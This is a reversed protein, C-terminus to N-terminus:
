SVRLEKVKELDEMTDVGITEFHTEKVRIRYGADLWRLQEISEIEELASPPLKALAQLVSNKYGYV